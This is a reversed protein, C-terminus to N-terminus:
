CPEGTEQDTVKGTLIYTKQLTGDAKGFVFKLSDPIVQSRLGSVAFLFFFCFLIFRMIKHEFIPLYEM